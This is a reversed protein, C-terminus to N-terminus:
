KFKSPRGRKAFRIGHKDAAIRLQSAKKLAESRAVGNPLELAEALAEDALQASDLPGPEERQRPPMMPLESVVQAIQPNAFVAAVVTQRLHNQPM